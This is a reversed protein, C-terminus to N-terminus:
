KSALTRFSQRIMNAEEESKADELLYMGFDELYKLMMKLSEKNDAGYNGLDRHDLYFGYTQYMGNMADEGRYRADVGRRGYSDYGPRGYNGGEMYNRGYNGRENYMNSEEKELHNIKAIDKKIDMLKMLFDVNGPQIKQKVINEIQTKIQECLENDLKEKDM